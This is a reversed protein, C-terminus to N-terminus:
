RMMGGHPDRNAGPRAAVSRERAIQRGGTSEAGDLSSSEHGYIWRLKRLEIDDGVDWMPPSLVAAVVELDEVAARARACENPVDLAATLVCSM